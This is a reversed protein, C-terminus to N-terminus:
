LKDFNSCKRLSLFQGTNRNPQGQLSTKTTTEIYFNIFLSTQDSSNVNKYTGRAIPRQVDPPCSPQTSMPEDRGTVRKAWSYFVNSSM